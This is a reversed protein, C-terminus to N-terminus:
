EHCHCHKGTSDFPDLFNACWWRAQTGRWTDKGCHKSCRWSFTVPELNPYTLEINRGLITVTTKSLFPLDPVEFFFLSGLILNLLIDLPYGIAVIPYAFIKAPWRLKARNRILNMTALFFLWVLGMCWLTAGLFILIKIM